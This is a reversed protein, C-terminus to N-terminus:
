REKHRRLNRSGKHITRIHLTTPTYTSLITRTGMPLIFPTVFAAEEVGDGIAEAM